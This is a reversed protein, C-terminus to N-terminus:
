LHFVRHREKETSRRVAPGDIPAQFRFMRLRQRRFAGVMGEGWLPSLIPVFPKAELLRFGLAPM